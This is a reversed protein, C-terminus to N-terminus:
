YELMPRVVSTYFNKIVYPDNLEKSWRRIFGLLARAKNVSIEIHINYTRKSNLSIIDLDKSVNPCMRLIYNDIRYPFSLM